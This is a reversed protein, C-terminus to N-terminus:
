VEDRWVLREERRNLNSMLETQPPCDPGGRIWTDIGATALAIGMLSTTTHRRKETAEPWEYHLDVGAKEEAGIRRGCHSCPLGRSTKGVSGGSDLHRVYCAHKAQLLCQPCGICYNKFDSRSVGAPTEEAM